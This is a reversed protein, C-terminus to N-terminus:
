FLILLLRSVTFCKDYEIFGVLNDDFSAVFEIKNNNFILNKLKKLEKNLRTQLDISELNFIKIQEDDTEIQNLYERKEIIFSHTEQILGSFTQKISNAKNEFDKIYKKEYEDILDVLEENSKKIQDIKDENNREKEQLKQIKLESALQVLRKEETCCEKLKDISESEFNQLREVLSKKENLNLELM